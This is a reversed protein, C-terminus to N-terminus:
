HWHKVLLILMIDTMLPQGKVCVYVLGKQYCQITDYFSGDINYWYDMLDWKAKMLFVDIM